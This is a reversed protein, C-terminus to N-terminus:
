APPERATDFGEGGAMAPPSPPFPNRASSRRGGAGRPKGAPSQCGIAPAPPIHDLSARLWGAVASSGDETIESVSVQSTSTTPAPLAASQAARAARSLRALTM